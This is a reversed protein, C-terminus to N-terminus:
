LVLPRPTGFLTEKIRPSELLHDVAPIEKFLSSKNKKKVVM